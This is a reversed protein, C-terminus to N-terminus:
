CIHPNTWNRPTGPKLGLLFICKQKWHRFKNTKCMCIERTFFDQAYFKGFNGYFPFLAHCCVIKTINVSKREFLWNKCLKMNKQLCMSAHKDSKSSWSGLTGDSSCSYLPLLIYFFLTPVESKIEIHNGCKGTINYCDCFNIICFYAHHMNTNPFKNPTDASKSAANKINQYSLILFINNGHFRLIIM